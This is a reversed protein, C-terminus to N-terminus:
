SLTIISNAIRKENGLLTTYFRQEIGYLVLKLEDETEIEFKDATFPVNCYEQIYEFINAKQTADYRSLTDMVMAIRKRNPIKVAEADFGNRMELFDSELFTQTEAETAERYLLDMGRFIANAASLKRFYLIDTAKDYIADAEKNITIIPKDVEISLEDLSFWKKRILMNTSINQFFYLEDQVSCIFSIKKTDADSIQNFNVSDFNDALFAMTYVSTSFNEYKYWEEEELLTEPNYVVGNDLTEPLSYIDDDTSLLRFLNQKRKVKALLYNM